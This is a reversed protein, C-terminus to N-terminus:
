PKTRFPGEDPENEARQAAKEFAEGWTFGLDQLTQMSTLFDGARNEVKLESERLLALISNGEVDTWCARGLDVPQIEEQVFWNGLVCAPAESNSYYSNQSDAYFYRCADHDYHSGCEPPEKDLFEDGNEEWDSRASCVECDSSPEYIFDTRDQIVQWISAKVDDYSYYKESMSWWDARGCDFPGPGNAISAQKM